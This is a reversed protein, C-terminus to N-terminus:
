RDLSPCFYWQQLGMFTRVLVVVITSCRAKAFGNTTMRAVNGGAIGAGDRALIMELITTLWRSIIWNFKPLSLKLSSSQWLFSVAHTSYFLFGM